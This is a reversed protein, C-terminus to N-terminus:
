YREAVTMKERKTRRRKVNEGVGEKEKSNQGKERGVGGWWNKLGM